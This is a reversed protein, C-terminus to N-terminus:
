GPSIRKRRRVIEFSRNLIDTSLEAEGAVEAYRGLSRLCTDELQWFHDEAQAYGMGFVADAHSKGHVHAVGWEDRTIAVSNAAITPSNAARATPGSVFHSLAVVLPLFGLLLLRM